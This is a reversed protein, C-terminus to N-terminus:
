QIGITKLFTAPDTIADVMWDLLSKKETTMEHYLKTKSVLKTKGCKCEFSIFGPTIHHIRLFCKHM